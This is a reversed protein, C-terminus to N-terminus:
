SPHVLNGKCLDIWPKHGNTGHVWGIKSKTTEFNKPHCSSTGFSWGVKLVLDLVRHALTIKVSHTRLTPDFGNNRGEKLSKIFYSWHRGIRNSNSKLNNTARLLPHSISDTLSGHPSQFHRWWLPNLTFCWQRIACAGHSKCHFWVWLENELMFSQIAESLSTSQLVSSSLSSKSFYDISKFNPEDCTAEWLICCSRIWDLFSLFFWSWHVFWYIHHLVVCKTGLEVEVVRIPMIDIDQGLYMNCKM